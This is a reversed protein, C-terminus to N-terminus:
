RCLTARVSQTKPQGIPDSASSIWSGSEATRSASALAEVGSDVGHFLAQKLCVYSQGFAGIVALERLENRRHRLAAHHLRAHV